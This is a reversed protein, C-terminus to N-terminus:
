IFQFMLKPRKKQKKQWVYYLSMPVAILEERDYVDFNNGWKSTYRTVVWGYM